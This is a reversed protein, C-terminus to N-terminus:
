NKIDHISNSPLISPLYLWQSHSTMTVLTAFPFVLNSSMDTQYQACSYKNLSKFKIRLYKVLNIVSRNGCFSINDKRQFYFM